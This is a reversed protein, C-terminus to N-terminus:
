ASRHAHMAIWGEDEDAVRLSLWPAYAQTLEDAQRALIGSLVLDGGPAVHACLVPALLRLPTALINALVLDYTGHACNPTGSRVTVGNTAANARAAEVAAADIDV